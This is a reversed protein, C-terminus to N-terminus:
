FDDPIKRPMYFVDGAKAYIINHRIYFKGDARDVVILGNSQEPISKEPQIDTSTITKPDSAIGCYRLRKAACGLYSYNRVQVQSLM